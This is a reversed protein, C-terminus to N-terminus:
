LIYVQEQTVFHSDSTDVSWYSFDYQFGISADKVDGVAVGARSQKYVCVCVCMMDNCFHYQFLSVFHLVHKSYTYVYTDPAFFQNNVKFLTTSKEKMEVVVPSKLDLERLFM